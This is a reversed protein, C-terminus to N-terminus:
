GTLLSRLLEMSREVHPVPSDDDTGESGSGSWREVGTRVATLALAAMLGPVEDGPELGLRRGVVEAVSRRFGDFRAVLATHLAPHEGALAFVDRLDARSPPNDALERVLLRTLDALVERAPAPGAAVFEEILPSPLETPGPLVAEEKNPFYNFFTRSSVGAEASIMDTTVKDFGHERVLRLAAVRIEHRTERRRRERLSEGPIVMFPNNCLVYLM